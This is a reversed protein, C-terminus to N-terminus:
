AATWGLDALIAAVADDQGGDLNEICVDCRAKYADATEVDIAHRMRKELADPLWCRVSLRARLTEIPAGVYVVRVRDRGILRRMTDAGDANLIAVFVATPEAAIVMDVTSRQVGYRGGPYVTHEAMAGAAVRQEFVDDTVFYYDVGDTEGTRPARTTMGCVFPWGLAKAITSKGSGSPGVLVVLRGM